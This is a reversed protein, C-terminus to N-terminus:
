RSPVLDKGPLGPPLNPPVEPSEPDPKWQEAEEQCGVPGPRQVAREAICILTRGVEDGRDGMWEGVNSEALDSAVGPADNVWKGIQDVGDEVLSAPNPFPVGWPFEGSPDTFDLPNGNVYWYLNSGSGAFGAPDQSIFRADLPSYYRARNYQLGTGDNERGTFQYLNDSKAGASNATGFPEYSYTTTTGEGSDDTLAIVSGLRDTLYSEISEGGRTRSFLQDPNLGTLLVLPTEEEQREEIVNTGDYLLETPEENGLTKLIRRGFPDYGFSAKSEGSIGSLQGRADWEFENAGDALLNGDPDYFDGSRLIPPEVYSDLELGAVDELVSL